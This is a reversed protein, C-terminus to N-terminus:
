LPQQAPHRRILRRVSRFAADIVHDLASTPAEIEHTGIPLDRAFRSIERVLTGPDRLWLDKHLGDDIVLLEKRESACADHLKHAMWCPCVEDSGGHIIMVPIHLKKM